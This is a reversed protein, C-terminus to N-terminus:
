MKSRADNFVANRTQKEFNDIPLMITKRWDNPFIRMFRSAVQEYLYHKVAVNAGPFRAANNLLKWTVRMRSTETLNKDEVLKIMRDLLMMRSMPPLYHLNLGYFGGPVKRFVVTVPVTDYYPLKDATKPEYMFLYMNGTQINTVMEGIDTRLVKQATLNTMGLKRIMDQYWRFSSTPTEKQRLTQFSNAPMFPLIPSKVVVQCCSLNM